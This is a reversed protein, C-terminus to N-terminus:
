FSLSFGPFLVFPVDIELTRGFHGLIEQAHDLQRIFVLSGVPLVAADDPNESVSAADDAPVAILRLHKRGHCVKM